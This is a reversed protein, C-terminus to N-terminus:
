SSTFLRDDTSQGVIPLNKNEYYSFDQTVIGYWGIVEKLFERESISRFAIYKRKNKELLGTTSHNTARSYLLYLTGDAATRINNGLGRFDEFPDFFLPKSQLGLRELSTGLQNRKTQLKGGGIFIVNTNNLLNSFANIDIRSEQEVSPVQLKLAEIIWQKDRNNLAEMFNSRKSLLGDINDNELFAEIAKPHIEPLILLVLALKELDGAQWLSLQKLKFGEPLRKKVLELASEQRGIRKTISGLKYETFVFDSDTKQKKQSAEEHTYIESLRDIGDILEMLAIQREESSAKRKKTRGTAVKIKIQLEKHLFFAAGNPDSYQALMFGIQYAEARIANNTQIERIENCVSEIKKRSKVTNVPLFWLHIIKLMLFLEPTKWSLEVDRKKLELQIVTLSGPKIFLFIILIFGGIYILFDQRQKRKQEHLYSKHHDNFYQAHALIWNSPIGKYITKLEELIKNIRLSDIGKSSDPTFEQTELILGIMTLIVGANRKLRKMERYSYAVESESRRISDEQESYNHCRKLVDTLINKASNEIFRRNRHYRDLKGRKKLEEAIQDIFLVNCDVYEEGEEDFYFTVVPVHNTDAWDIGKKSRKYDMPLFLVKPNKGPWALDLLHKVRHRNYNIYNGPNTRFREIDNPLILNSKKDWIRSEGHIDKTEDYAIRSKFVLVVLLLALLIRILWISFVIPTIAAFRKAVSKALAFIRFKNIPTM